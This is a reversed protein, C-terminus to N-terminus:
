CDTQEWPDASLCDGGPQYCGYTCQDASEWFVREARASNIEVAGYLTAILLGVGLFKGKKM